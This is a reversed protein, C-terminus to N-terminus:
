RLERKRDMDSPASVHLIKNRDPLAGAWIELINYYFPRTLAVPGHRWM